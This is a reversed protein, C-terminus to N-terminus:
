SPGNLCISEFGDCYKLRRKPVELSSTVRLIVIKQHCTTDKFQYSFDRTSFTDHCTFFTHEIYCPSM